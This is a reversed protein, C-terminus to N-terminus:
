KHGSVFNAFGKESVKLTVPVRADRRTREQRGVVRRQHKGIRPHILKLIDKCARLSAIVFAGRRRLLAQARAALMVVEVINAVVRMVREELHEAVKREAIVELAVGDAIREVQQQVFVLHREFPQPERNISRVVIGGRQPNLRADRRLADQTEVLLIVEPLHAVGARAARAALNMEVRAVVGVIGFLIAGLVDVAVAARRNFDPIEDEHLVLAIRRARQRRQGLRRHVRARPKLADGGHKLARPIIVLGVQQARNNVEDCPEGVTMVFGFCLVAERHADDGVM